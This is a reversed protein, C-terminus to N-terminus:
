FLWSRTLHLTRSKRRGPSTTRRSKRKPSKPNKRKKRRRPSPSTAKASVHLTGQEYGIDAGIPLLLILAIIGILVGLIILFVM